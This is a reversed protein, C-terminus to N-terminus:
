YLVETMILIHCHWLAQIKVSYIRFKSFIVLVSALFFFNIRSINAKKLYARERHKRRHKRRDKRRDGGLFFIVGAM